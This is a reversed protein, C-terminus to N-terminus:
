LVAICCETTMPLNADNDDDDDDADSVIQLVGNVSLFAWSVGPNRAIAGDNLSPPQELIAM